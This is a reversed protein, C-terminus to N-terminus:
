HPNMVLKKRPTSERVPKDPVPTNTKEDTDEEEDDFINCDAGAIEDHYNEQM